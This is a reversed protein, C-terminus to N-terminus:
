KGFIDMASKKAKPATPIGPTATARPAPARSPMPEGAAGAFGVKKSGAGGTFPVKFGLLTSPPTAPEEIINFLSQDTWTPSSLRRGTNYANEFESAVEPNENLFQLVDTGELDKPVGTAEKAMQWARWHEMGQSKAGATKAQPMKEWYKTKAANLAMQQYLAQIRAMDLPSLEKSGGLQKKAELLAILNKNKAEAERQQSM